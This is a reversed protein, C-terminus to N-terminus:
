RVEQLAKARDLVVYMQAQDQNKAKLQVYIYNADIYIKLDVDSHASLEKIKERMASFNGTARAEELSYHIQYYFDELQPNRSDELIIEYKKAGGYKDLGSVIQGYLTQLNKVNNLKFHIKTQDNNRGTENFDARFFEIGEIQEFMKDMPKALGYKHFLIQGGFLIALTILSALIGYLWHHKKQM